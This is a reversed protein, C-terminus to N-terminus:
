DRSYFGPMRQVNEESTKKGEKFYFIKGEEYYQMIVSPEGLADKVDKLEGPDGYDCVIRLMDTLPKEQAGSAKFEYSLGDDLYIWAISPPQRKAVDKEGRRVWSETRFDQKTMLRGDRNWQLWFFDPSGHKAHVAQQHSAIREDESWDRNELPFNKPVKAVNYSFLPDPVVPRPGAQKSACGIALMAVCGIALFNRNITM